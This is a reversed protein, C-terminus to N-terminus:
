EDAAEEDKQAEFEPMPPPGGMPVTPKPAAEVGPVVGEYHPDAWPLVSKVEAIAVMPLFRLFM